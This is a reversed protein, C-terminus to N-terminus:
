PCMVGRLHAELGELWDPVRLRLDLGKANVSRMEWSWSHVGLSGQGSAFGTMSRIKMFGDRKLGGPTM